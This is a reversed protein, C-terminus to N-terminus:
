IKLSQMCNEFIFSVKLSLIAQIVPLIIRKRMCSLSACIFLTMEGTM